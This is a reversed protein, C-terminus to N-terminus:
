SRPRDDEPANNPYRLLLPLTESRAFDRVDTTSAQRVLLQASITITHLFKPAGAAVSKAKDPALGSNALTVHLYLM